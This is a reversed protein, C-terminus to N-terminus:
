LSYLTYPFTFPDIKNKSSALLFSKEGKLHRQKHQSCRTNVAQSVACTLRHGGRTLAAAVRCVHVGVAALGAELTVVRGTLVESVKCNNRESERTTFGLHQPADRFASKMIIITIIIIPKLDTEADFSTVSSGERRPVLLLLSNSGQRSFLFFITSAAYNMDCENGVKLYIIKLEITSM